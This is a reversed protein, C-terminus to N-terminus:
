VTVIDASLVDAEAWHLLDANEILLESCSKQLIKTDHM